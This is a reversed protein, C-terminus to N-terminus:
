VVYISWHNKIKAIIILWLKDEWVLMSIKKNKQPPPNYRTECIGVALWVNLSLLYVTAYFPNRGDAISMISREYLLSTTVWPVCKSLFVCRGETSPSEGLGPAFNLFQSYFFTLLKCKNWKKTKKLEITSLVDCAAIPQFSTGVYRPKYSKKTSKEFVIKKEIPM